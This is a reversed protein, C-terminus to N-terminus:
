LTEDRVALMALALDIASRNSLPDDASRFLTVGIVLNIVVLM